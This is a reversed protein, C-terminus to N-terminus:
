SATAVYSFRLCIVNHFSFVNQQFADYYPQGPLVSFKSVQRSIFLYVNVRMEQLTTVITVLGFCM